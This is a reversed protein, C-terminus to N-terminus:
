REALLVARLTRQLLAAARISRNALDSVSVPLARLCRRPGVRRCHSKPFSLDFTM